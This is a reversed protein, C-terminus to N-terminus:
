DKKVELSEGEERQLDITEQALLNAGVVSKDPLTVKTLDPGFSESVPSSETLSTEPHPQSLQTGAEKIQDRLQAQHIEGNSIASELHVSNPENIQIDPNVPYKFENVGGQEPTKSQAINERNSM